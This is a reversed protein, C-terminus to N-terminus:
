QSIYSNLHNITDKQIEIIAKVVDSISIIGIVINNENNEKLINELLIPMIGERGLYSDIALHVKIKKKLVLSIHNIKFLHVLDFATIIANIKLARRIGDDNLYGLILIQKKTIKNIREAEEISDVQFYDVYSSAIKAIEFDGHGYANSKIVAILKINKGILGRFQKINHILNEKSIEIYSLSKKDM